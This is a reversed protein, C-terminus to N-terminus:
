AATSSLGPTTATSPDLVHGHVGPRLMEDPSIAKAQWSQKELEVLGQEVTTSSGNVVHHPM